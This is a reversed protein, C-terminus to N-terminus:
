GRLISLTRQVELTQAVSLLEQHLRENQKHRAADMAAVAGYPGSAIRAYTHRDGLKYAALTIGLELMQAFAPAVAALTVCHAEAMQEATFPEVQCLAWGVYEGFRRGLGARRAIEAWAARMANEVPTM